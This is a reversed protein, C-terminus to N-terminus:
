LGRLLYPVVDAVGDLRGDISVVAFNMEIDAIRGVREDLGVRLDERPNELRERGHRLVQARVDAIRFLEKGNLGGLIRQEVHCVRADEVVLFVQPAHRLARRTAGSRRHRGVVGDHLQRLHALLSSNM